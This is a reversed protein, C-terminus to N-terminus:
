KRTEKAARASGDYSVAGWDTYIAAAKSGAM